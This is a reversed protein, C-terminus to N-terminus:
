IEGRVVKRAYEMAEQDTLEKFSDVKDPNGNHMAPLPEEDNDPNKDLAAELEAIRADKKANDEKLNNRETTLTAIEQDKAEVQDAKAKLEDREQTLNAINSAQENITKSNTENLAKETRGEGIAKDIEALQEGNLSVYGDVMQLARCTELSQLNEHGKMTTINHNSLEIVKGIANSMTGIGDILTGVTESANYTRGKLQENKAEPRNTRIAAKFRENTPNLIREKILKFDGELASEYESNKEESGDAYVRIHVFGNSDKAQRPWDDLEIMTGICGIKDEERHAMIYDCYSGAYMAASCMYGDVYAVVPKTCAQIAEALDPVSNVAGGGSDIHMIHGIVKPNADAELLQRAITRTGTGGCETDDRFMTGVLYVVNIGNGSPISADERHGIISNQKTENEEDYFKLGSLMGVLVQRQAAATQPEIMWPERFIDNFFSLKPM